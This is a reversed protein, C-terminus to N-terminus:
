VAHGKQRRDDYRFVVKKIWLCAAIEAMGRAYIMHRDYPIDDTPGDRFFDGLHDQAASLLFLAYSEFWARPHDTAQAERKLASLDLMYDPSRAARIPSEDDVAWNFTLHGADWDITGIILGPDYQEWEETGMQRDNPPLPRTNDQEMRSIVANCAERLEIFLPSFPRQIKQRATLTGPQGAGGISAALGASGGSALMAEIQDAFRMLAYPEAFFRATASQPLIEDDPESLQVEVWYRANAGRRGITIGVCTEVPASSTTSDSFYGGQLKIPEDVAPPWAKLPAVFQRLADANFWASARGWFGAHRAEVRLEGHWEDEPIYHLTLM